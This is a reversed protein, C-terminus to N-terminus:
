CFYHTSFSGGGARCIGAQTTFEDLWDQVADHSVHKLPYVVGNAGMSPFIFDDPELPRGYHQTELFSIWLKLWHFADCAPLDPQPFLKFKNAPILPERSCISGKEYFSIPESRLSRNGADRQGNEADM